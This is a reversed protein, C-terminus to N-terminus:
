VRDGKYFKLIIQQQTHTCAWLCFLLGTKSSIISNWNYSIDPTHSLDLFPIAFAATLFFLRKAM